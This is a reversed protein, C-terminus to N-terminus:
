DLWTCLIRTTDDCALMWDFAFRFFYRHLRKGSRDKGMQVLGLIFIYCFTLVFLFFFTLCFLASFIHLSLFLYWAEAKEPQNDPHDKDQVNACCSM